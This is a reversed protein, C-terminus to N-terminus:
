RASLRSLVFSVYDCNLKRATTGVSKIIMRQILIPSTATNINTTHTQVLIGDIYFMVSLGDAAIEITFVHYTTDATIGSDTVTTVTGSNTTVCEWRGSNINDTYRFYMGVNVPESNADGIGFFAIYRNTGDSLNELAMRQTLVFKTGSNRLTGSIVRTSSSSGTSTTGTSVYEIGQAKETTDLGFTGLSAVAGAGSSTDTWYHARDFIFDDEFKYFLDIDSGERALFTERIDTAFQQVVLGTIDRTGNTGFSGTDDEYTAQFAEPTM